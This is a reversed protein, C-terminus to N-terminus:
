HSKSSESSLLELISTSFHHMQDKNYMPTAFALSIYLELADPGEFMYKCPCFCPSVSHMSELPGLGGAVNM